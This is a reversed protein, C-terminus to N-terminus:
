EVDSFYQSLSSLLATSTAATSSAELGAGGHAGDRVAKLYDRQAELAKQDRDLYNRVEIELTAIDASTALANM